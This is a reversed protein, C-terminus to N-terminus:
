PSYLAKIRGWTTQESPVDDVTTFSWVPSTVTGGDTDVVRVKWYYTTGTALPGPDYTFPDHWQAVVPPDSETGFYVDNWVVGLGQSCMAISWSLITNLPQETAGDPPYHGTIEPPGWGGLITTGGALYGILPVPATCDAYEIEGSAVVPDPLVPFRCCVGTEGTTWVTVSLLLVPSTECYGFAIAVGTQSNGLVTPFPSSEGIYVAGEFCDPIPASFQVATAEPVFRMLIYYTALGGTDEFYTTGEPDGFIGVSGSYQGWGAGALLCGIVVSLVLFRKMEREQTM